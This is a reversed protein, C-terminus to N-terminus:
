NNFYKSLWSNSAPQKWLHNLDKLFTVANNYVFCNETIVGDRVSEAIKSLSINKIEDEDSVAILSRDTLSQHLKEELSKIFHMM